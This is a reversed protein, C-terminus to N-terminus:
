QWDDHIGDVSDRDFMESRGELRAKSQVDRYIMFSKGFWSMRADLEEELDRSELSDDYDRVIQNNDMRRRLRNGHRAELGESEASDRRVMQDFDMRRRHPRNRAELGESSGRDRRSMQDFNMRRRFERGNHTRRQLGDDIRGNSFKRARIRNNHPARAEEDTQIHRRTLEGFSMRHRTIGRSDLKPAEPIPDHPPPAIAACQSRRRKYYSRLDFIAMDEEMERWYGRFMRKVVDGVDKFFRPLVGLVERSVLEDGSSSESRSYLIEEAISRIVPDSYTFRQNYEVVDGNLKKALVSDQSSFGAIVVALLLTSFKFQVM